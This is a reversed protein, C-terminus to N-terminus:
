YLCDRERYKKEVKQRKGIAKVRKIKKLNLKSFNRDKQLPFFVHTKKFLPKLQVDKSFPMFETYKMTFNPM